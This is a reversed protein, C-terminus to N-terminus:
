YIVLKKSSVGHKSEIKVFYIGPKLNDIKVKANSCISECFVVQGVSNLISINGNVIGSPLEIEVSGTAPNPFLKFDLNQNYVTSNNPSNIKLWIPNTYSEYTTSSIKYINVNSFEKFTKLHMRLLFYQDLPVNGVGFIEDFLDSLSIELADTNNPLFYEYNEAETQVVISKSVVVGYESSNSSYSNLLSTEIQNFDIDQNDGIIIEPNSNLLDTDIQFSVIPGSSLITHGNKMAFLINEGNEGMGNPCYALTSIKGIANDNVTGTVNMFYDTTSYNYSGHADSGASMFFKWNQSDPNSNIAELGKQWIFKTVDRNQAFRTLHHEVSEVPLLTFEDTDDNFVNWADDENSAVTLNNFMNWGEGGVINNKLLKNPETSLIDSTQGLDNCNVTGGSPYAVGNEPFDPHSLNWVSGDVIFSLEDGESFPHAAYSFADYLVLSDSLMDINVDTGYLDGDGDGFYPMSLPNSPSPYTLAHVQDSESNKVTMEIGRIFIFSDDEANLYSVENGLKQWNEYMGQGYNDYDCSHDTLTIWDLGCVKAMYKTADLPFGVESDNQTYMGHYHVDGRFWDELTPYNSTQRFVRCYTKYDTEWDLEFYVEFDIVDELGALKEGPILITFWWYDHTIDVYTTAPFTHNDSTFDITYSNSKIAGSENFPQIDLETDEPSRNIILAQFEEDTYEDFTIMEGFSNSSSNKVKIRINMLEYNSGIAASGHAFVHIPIPNLEDLDNTKQIHYPADAYIEAGTTNGQKFDNQSYSLVCVFLLLHLLIYKM